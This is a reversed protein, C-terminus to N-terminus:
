PEVLGGVRGAHVHGSRGDLSDARVLPAAARHPGTVAAAALSQDGLRDFQQHVEGADCAGNGACLQGLELHRVVGAGAEQELEDILKLLFRRGIGAHQEGTPSLPRLDPAHCREGLLFKGPM